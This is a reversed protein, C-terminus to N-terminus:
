CRRTIRQGLPKYSIIEVKFKGYTFNGDPLNWEAEEETPIKVGNVEQYNRYYTTWQEKFYEGDVERYRDNTVLKIIEGQDNFTFVASATYGHDSIVARALNSDIEIWELYNSPLLATPFWPAESLFRLLSSVDLEKGTVDVVTIASFLKILMSRKGRYYMDRTGVWMFPALKLKAQWVFAPNETTFYQEAEIPKWDQNAKMRFEGTQKLRVFRIHEQEDSLSYKLYRQVLEPLGELNDYAFIKAPTESVDKTLENIEEEVKKSFSYGSIAIFVVMAALFVGFIILIIKLM